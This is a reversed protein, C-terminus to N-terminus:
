GCSRTGRTPPRDVGNPVIRMAHRGPAPPAPRLRGAPSQGPRGPQSGVARKGPLRRSSGPLDVALATQALSNRRGREVIRQEALFQRLDAVFGDDALVARRLGRVAEDYAAPPGGLVHAGQSGQDGQGHLGRGATPMSRGREWWRRSSFTCPTATRGLDRRHRDILEAWRGRRQGPAPCRRCFTSGPGSTPAANPTTPPCLSCPTPGRARGRATDAHFAEVPRGFVGPDGGVENLSVLRDYRYFATDEVGKAMVPATLQAFGSPSSRGRARRCPGLALEGLFGVLEGDIDPAISPRRRGRRARPETPKPRPGAPIFM